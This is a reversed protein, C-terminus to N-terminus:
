QRGFVKLLPDLVPDPYPWVQGRSTLVRTLADSTDPTRGDAQMDIAQRLIDEAEPWRGEQSLGRALNVVAASWFATRPRTADQVQRLFPEAESWAGQEVLFRGLLLLGIIRTAQDKTSTVLDRLVMEADFHRGVTCLDTLFGSLM